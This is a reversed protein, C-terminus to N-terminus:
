WSDVLMTKAKKRSLENNNGKRMFKRDRGCVAAQQAILKFVKRLRNLILRTNIWDVAKKKIEYQIRKRMVRRGKRKRWFSEM